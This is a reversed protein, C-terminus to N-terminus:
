NASYTFEAVNSWASERVAPGEAKLWFYYKKGDRPTLYPASTSPINVTRTNSGAEITTCTINDYAIAQSSDNTTSYGLVATTAGEAGTKGSYNFTINVACSSTNDTMSNIVLNTPAPLTTLTRGENEDSSDDSCGTVACAMVLAAFIAALKSLKKMFGGLNEKKQKKRFDFLALNGRFTLFIKAYGICFFLLGRATQAHFFSFSVCSGGGRVPARRSWGFCFKSRFFIRARRGVALFTRGACRRGGAGVLASSLVSFSVRGGEGSLSPEGGRVPARKSWGFGFKSRFFIRARREGALFTRGACRRM